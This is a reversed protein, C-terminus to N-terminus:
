GLKTAWYHLIIKILFKLLNKTPLGLNMGFILDERKINGIFYKYKKLINQYIRDEILKLSEVNRM